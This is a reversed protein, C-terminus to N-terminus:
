KGFEDILRGAYFDEWTGAADGSTFDRDLEVLRYVVHRTEAVEHLLAGIEQRRRNVGGIRSPLQPSEYM